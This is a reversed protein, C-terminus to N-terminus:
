KDHPSAECIGKAEYVSFSSVLAALGSLSISNISFFFFRLLGDSEQTM